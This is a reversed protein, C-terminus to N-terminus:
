AIRPFLIISTKSLSHGALLHDNWDLEAEWTVRSIGLLELIKGSIGPMVPHLLTTALRIAEATTALVILLLTRDSIEGSKALKWPARNELYRNIARIFAFLHELATNLLFTDYNELVQEKTQQWFQKLVQEPSDPKTIGTLNSTESDFDKTDPITGQSYRQVMNVFRSILNGLDNGLDNNYRSLFLEHSFNSDHGVTMERIVFYRFADPGFQQAYDLPNVVNGISKSMKEGDCLWWGHTLLRQPMPLGIAHLMCPWYIAHAPVLIDKGIVHDDVPWYKDFDETGYGIASIYNILADFWVYTVYEHDFPLEIGWSLRSKPRSICLDNINGKLFELVQKARFKPFIFDEHANIYEVLWDKHKNLKFFYNTETIETVEGFEVEPWVGNIQDKEQLFREVRTSYFGTYEAKYIEGQNYLQQLINQVVDKHRPQTTRIYDDYSIRLLQCMDIFEQAVTDCLEQPSINKSHATQEVKQGHEDLGTLFHVDYGELHKIRCIVDALIKEYAHGIHPHGNAYDIATTLYFSKM